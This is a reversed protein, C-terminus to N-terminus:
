RPAWASAPDRTSPPGRSRAWSPAMAALQPANPEIGERRMSPSAGSDCSRKWRRQPWEGGRQWSQITNRNNSRSNGAIRMIYSRQIEETQLGGGGHKDEARKQRCAEKIWKRGDYSSEYRSGNADMDATPPESDTVQRLQAKQVHM